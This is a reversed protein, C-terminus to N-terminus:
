KLHDIADLLQVIQYDKATGNSDPQFNMRHGPEGLLAPNAYLKHSGKQRKFEWGYIEALSCLEEFRM